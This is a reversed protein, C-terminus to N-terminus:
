LAGSETNLLESLNYEVLQKAFAHRIVPLYFTSKRILYANCIEPLQPKM